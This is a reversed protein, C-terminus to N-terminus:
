QPLDDERGRLKFILINKVTGRREVDLNVSTSSSDATYTSVGSLHREPSKSNTEAASM